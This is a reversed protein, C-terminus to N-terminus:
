RAEKVRAYLRRAIAHHFVVHLDEIQELMELPAQVLVACFPKMAESRPQMGTFGIVRAGARCAYELARLVNESGGSGSIGIVVDAPQLHNKLQELFVDAYAVDNGLATLWAANDGLSTIRLRRAGSVSPGQGLDPATLKGLDAAMHSALAASAGNGFAFVQRGGEWARYLEDAARELAGADVHELAGQVAQLYERIGPGTM